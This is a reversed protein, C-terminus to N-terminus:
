FFTSLPDVDIGIHIDRPRTICNLTGQIIKNMFYVSPGSIVLQFRFKDKIKAYGSPVVPHMFFNPALKTQISDYIKKAFNFVKLSDEGTFTIKIMHTIPPYSFMKRVEIEEKYFSLFNQDKALNITANDPMYSQIIVEGEIAGRGSRGSVQTLLQFVNESARFDPINLSSDANLVGVLTVAPFHLGKSVMQTGILLDAKGTRFERILKEHSGKHRTTDADIRLTKLAPFVNKIQREVQETGMGRYKLTDDSKCSPCQVPPLKTYGCLHCSLTKENFHFTLNLECHPCKSVYGCAKCLQTTYYGRRNLFLLTQEGLEMRKKIGSLLAQSFITYNESREQEKKMDIISVKPMYAKGARTSITSLIYKNQEANYFSELSPTASGLIVTAKKLYGRMVAVDRAHYNPSEDSQKYSNEHEEDVIILGLNRLPCFIASRAGIVIRAKGTNIKHWEEFREGESLRHHLLAINDSFRSKFREVTQATLAIEPVLMLASKDCKLAFAIAQMYVETKGSGTVGYILHTQFTNSEISANIKDLCEQQEKGLTKPKSQFYEQNMLPSLAVNVEEVRLVGKKVLTDVPSRSQQTIELLESLFIGKQVKLMVDLVTAQQPHLGRISELLSVLYDLPKGRTIYLQQKPEIQKRVSSPLLMKIVSGLPSLYYKAMWVALEFLEDSVLEEHSLIEHIPLINKANSEDKIEFIYGRRKVGRVMVEVLMGRKLLPLMSDVIGFDYAKDIALELIVAAYKTYKKLNQPLKEAVEM